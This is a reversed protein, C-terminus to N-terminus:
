NYLLDGKDLSWFNFLKPKYKSELLRELINNMSKRYLFIISVWPTIISNSGM